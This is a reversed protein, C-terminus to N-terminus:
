QRGLRRNAPASPRGTRDATLRRPQRPRAFRQQSERGLEVAVAERSDVERASSGLMWRPGVRRECAVLTLFAVSRPWCCRLPSGWSGSRSEEAVVARGAVDPQPAVQWSRASPQTEAPPAHSESEDHLQSTLWGVTLRIEEVAQRCDASEGLMTEVDAHEAPDLEGLVFATLRPDNPDCTM